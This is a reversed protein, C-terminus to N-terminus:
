VDMTHLIDPKTDSQSSSNRKSVSPTAIQHGSGGGKISYCTAPSRILRQRDTCRRVAIMIMIGRRNHNQPRRMTHANIFQAALTGSPTATSCGRLFTDCHTHTRPQFSIFLCPVFATFKCNHLGATNYHDAVSYRLLTTIAANMRRWCQDLPLWSMTMYEKM